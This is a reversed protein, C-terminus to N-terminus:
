IGRAVAEVRKWDSESTILDALESKVVIGYVYDAAEPALEGLVYGIVIEDRDETYKRIALLEHTWGEDDTFVEGNGFSDIQASDNDIYQSLVLSSIKKDTLKSLKKRVM